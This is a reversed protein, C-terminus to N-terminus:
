KVFDYLYRIVDFGVTRAISRIFELSVTCKYKPTDLQDEHGVQALLQLTVLSSIQSFINATPAVRSDVISYFIAMLRDLPFARPGLLQHSTEKKRNVASKKVKGHNKSFFRRDYRAPNYSALYAAILLYKSYFPLEMQARASLIGPQSTQQGPQGTEARQFKEWQESTVERLYVTQLAKKLHPEINRWLKHSDKESAEGKTIPEVYKPFNLQALHRIENLDRCVMYFISMLLNVYSSYFEVSYGEPCDTAIIELLEGKTYDPFHIIFPEVHNSGFGFLFKEWVIQSLLLVCVNCGSLQSLNLFAPLINGDMNRLREAKDLVIYVTQNQIGRDETTKKLLRVFTNMNECRNLSCYNNEPSPEHNAVRDLIRDLLQRTTQCEICNVFAHPLALTKLLTSVVLTKGTAAHGYIFVSPYTPHSPEGMLSRLLAIQKQRCLISLPDEMESATTGEM